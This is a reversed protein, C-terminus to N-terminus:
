NCTDPIRDWGCFFYLCLSVGLCLWTTRLGRALALVACRLGAPAGWPQGACLLWLDQWRKEKKKRRRRTKRVRKGEGNEKKVKKRREKKRKRGSGGGRDKRQRKRGKGWDEDM